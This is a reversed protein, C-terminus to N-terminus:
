YVEVKDLDTNLLVSHLSGTGFNGTLTLPKTDPSVCEYTGDDLQLMDVNFGGDYPKFERVVTTRGANEMVLPYVGLLEGESYIELNGSDTGMDPVNIYRASDTSEASVVKGNYKISYTAPSGDPALVPSNVEVVSHQKPYVHTPTISKMRLENKPIDVLFLPRFGYATSPDISQSWGSSSASIMQSGTVYPRAYYYTSSTTHGSGMTWSTTSLYNWTANSRPPFNGGLDSSMIIKSLEGCYSGWDAGIYSSNSGMIPIRVYIYPKNDVMTKSGQFSAYGARELVLYTMGYQVDRDAILRMRGDPTYGTHILYFAGNPTAPPATMANILPATCTGLESFTGLAGSTTAKYRCIIRDGIKMSHLTTRTKPTTPLNYTEKDFPEHGKPIPRIFWRNGFNANIYLIATSYTGIVPYFPTPIVIPKTVMLKGDLYISIENTDCDIAVGVISASGRPATSNSGCAQNNTYNYVTSSQIGYGQGIPISVPNVNNPQDQSALGITLYNAPQIMDCELEFYVKGGTVPKTTRIFCTQNGSSPSVVTLDGNTLRVKGDAPLTNRDWTIM